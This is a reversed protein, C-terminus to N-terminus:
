RKGLLVKRGLVIIEEVDGLWCFNAHLVSIKLFLDMPHGQTITGTMGDIKLFRHTWNHCFFHIGLDQSLWKTIVPNVTMMKWWHRSLINKSICRHTYKKSSISRIKRKSTHYKRHWFKWKRQSLCWGYHTLPPRPSDFWQSGKGLLPGFVGVSKLLIWQRCDIILIPYTYNWRTM